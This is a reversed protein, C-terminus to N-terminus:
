VTGRRKITDAPSLASAKKRKGGYVCLLKVKKLGSLTKKIKLIEKRSLPKVACPRLPTNIQVEDPRIKRILENFRGCADKNQAIFMIQLGFRGKYQRRFKMISSILDQFKFGPYPKNINELTEQSYADLKCIVFDAASLAQRTSNLRMLSANTLVAVPAIDLKKIKVIAEKLNAALAPEGMGSFTIYDIGPRPISKLEDIIREVPVFIKKSAKVSPNRGLQCYLCNFTCVKNRASIIDVGLSRGIRWSSVPGYIFRHNKKRNM